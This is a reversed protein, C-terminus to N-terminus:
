DTLGFIFPIIVRLEETEAFRWATAARLASRDLRPHGSSEYIEAGTVSGDRITVIVKVKGEEKRKRSFAPYDPVVEKLITLSGAGVPGAPRTQAAPADAARLPAESISEQQSAGSEAPVIKESADSPTESVTQPSPAQKVTRRTKPKSEPKPRVEQPRTEQTQLASQKQVAPVSRLSLKLPSEQRMKEMPCLSLLLVLPVHLLMSMVVPFLWTRKGGGSPMM